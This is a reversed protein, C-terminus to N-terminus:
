GGRGPRAGGRVPSRPCRRPAPGFFRRRTRRPADQRRDRGGQPGRRTSDQGAGLCGLVADLRDADLHAFLRRLTSEDGQGRELGLRELAASGADRAWEWIATFGRAGALVACVAVAILAGVQHRVGRRRRPDPKGALLEALLEHDPVPMRVPAPILPSSM